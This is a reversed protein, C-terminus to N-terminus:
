ANWETRTCHQQRQIEQHLNWRWSRNARCDHSLTGPHSLGKTELNVGVRFIVTRPGKTEVAERLSGPGSDNLNTVFLIKGGRGGTSFAGFGEAGPFAPVKGDVPSHEADVQRYLQRYASDVIGRDFWFNKPQGGTTYRVSTGDATRVQPDTLMIGCKNTGGHYTLKWEYTKDELVARVMAGEPLDTFTGHSPNACGILLLDGSPPPALLNIQLKCSGVGNGKDDPVPFNVRGETKGWAFIPTVGEADVDFVLEVASPPPQKEVSLYNYVGIHLGDESVIASAKSGVIRVMCTSGSSAGLEFDKTVVSGGRIELTGKGQQSTGGGGSFFLSGAFVNGSNLVFRGNSGTYKGIDIVGIVTLSPGDLILSSSIGTSEAIVLHSVLVDGQALTVMDPVPGKGDISVQSTRFPLGGDWKAADNWQGAGGTWKSATEAWLTSGALLM